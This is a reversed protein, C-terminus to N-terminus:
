LFSYEVLEAVLTAEKSHCYNSTAYLGVKERKNLSPHVFRKYLFSSGKTVPSLMWIVFIIKIEYYFPLRFVFM